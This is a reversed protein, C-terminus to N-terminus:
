HQLVWEHFVNSLLLQSPIVSKTFLLDYLHIASITSFSEANCNWSTRYYSTVGIIFKVPLEHLLCYRTVRVYCNVRIKHFLYYSSVRIYSTGQLEHVLCYSTVCICFSIQAFVSKYSTGYITVRLKYTFLLKCGRCYITVRLEYSAVQLKKTLFGSQLLLKM